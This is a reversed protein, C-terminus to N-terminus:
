AATRGNAREDDDEDEKASNKDANPAETAPKDPLGMDRRLEIERLEERLQQELIDEWDTGESACVDRLCTTHTELKIKTAMAEKQPDVWPWGPPIWRVSEIDERNVGRLMPDNRLLGDELVVFWIWNLAKTILWKQLVRYSQRTELLDTRASSYTSNGFDKLVVQWSIGLAAGIRRCLMVVFPELEPTPFNPIMTSVTEGPFLRFIMGPELQQDLKYGYTKATVELVDVTASDSTIFVSLCAAIQVRKLSALLLLDLDRLDQLIAHMMPVGRTQGPRKVIRLHRADAKEIRMFDTATIAPFIGTMQKAAHYAVIRDYSDREVGDRFRPDGTKDAPTAIRDGEIMEFWVPDGSTYSRKILVDGDEIAKTAILSQAEELTIDDAPFLNDKRAAWYAEIKKAKKAPALSQPVIGTGVINRVFTGTIGSALPDDRNLM